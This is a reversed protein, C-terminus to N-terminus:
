FIQHIIKNYNKIVLNCDDIKYSIYDMLQAGTDYIGIKFFDKIEAM